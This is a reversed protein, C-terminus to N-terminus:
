ISITISETILLTSKPATRAIKMNITNRFSKRGVRTIAKEMGILRTVATTHMYKLPIVSFMMEREPKARPTPISTSLEITTISFIYRIRLSPFLIRSAEMSPAFSTAPAIMAEVKVVTQTNKGMTNVSPIVLCNNTSIPNVM